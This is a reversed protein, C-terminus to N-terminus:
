SSTYNPIKQADLIKKIKSVVDHPDITRMANEYGPVEKNGYVSTPLQPYKKRDSILAHELPQQFPTFGAYPHTAGWLTVVKTGMMAAIHANGSDMSLLVDLYSMLTVEEKFNISGAVIKVNSFSQQLEELKDKESRAGFLFITNDADNAIGAIVQEMLDKPYIKTEYQAYPAIGIWNTTKEGNTLELIAETLPNKKPFDVKSIDIPYGLKEFTDAHRQFMSKLQKFEKNEPRTLAKKEERGKDTHEVRKGSINFITRIFKSRIVNHLDAVADIKLKRLDAYLKVMGKAGKHRDKLDVGYFNIGPITQFLPEFFPHSVVTLKVKPYQQRFARLVPVTMAVDGMASLRIVLIHEEADM